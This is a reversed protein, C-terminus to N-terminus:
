LRPNGLRTPTKQAAVHHTGQDSVAKQSVHECTDGNGM